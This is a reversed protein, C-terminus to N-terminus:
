CRKGYKYGHLEFFITLYQKVLLANANRYFICAQVDKQIQYYEDRQFHQASLM